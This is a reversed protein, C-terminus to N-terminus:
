NKLIQKAADYLSFFTWDPISKLPEKYKNNIFITKCEASKGAEIDSWRDGIMYSKKCDISYKKASNLIMKPSPKYCPSTREFCVEIDDVPLNKLLLAHFSDVIEKKQIGDGVDPQNTIVILLFGENKLMKLAKDVCPLIEFEELNNPPYSKGNKIIPKNIVGDRDLFIARNFM